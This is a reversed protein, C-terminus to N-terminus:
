TSKSCSRIWRTLANETQRDCRHRSIKIQRLAKAPLILPYSKLQSATSVDDTVAKVPMAVGPQYHLAFYTILGKAHSLHSHNQLCANQNVGLEAAASSSKSLSDGPALKGRLIRAPDPLIKEPL